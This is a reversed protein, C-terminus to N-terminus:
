NGLGKNGKNDQEEGISFEMPPLQKTAIYTRCVIGTFLLKDGDQLNAMMKQTEENDSFGVGHDNSITKCFFTKGDRLVIITCSIIVAPGDGFEGHIAASPAIQARALPGSITGGSKNTFYPIPDPLRKVQFGSRGIKVAGRWTKRYVEIKAYGLSDPTIEYTGPEVKVIKGNDTTVAISHLPANQVAIILRNEMGVYLVNGRNNQVAVVQCFAPSAVMGFFMLWVIVKM